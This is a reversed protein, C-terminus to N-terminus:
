KVFSAVKVWQAWGASATWKKLWLEGATGTVYVNITNADPAIACPATGALLIGGLGDWGTQKGSILRNHWLDGATGRVFVDITGTTGSCASPASTLTGGLSTWTSTPAPAYWLAKDSGAVFTDGSPLTTPSSAFTTHTPNPSPNFDTTNIIAWCDGVGDDTDLFFSYPMDWYGNAGWGAGWSNKVLFAGKSGDYNGTHNDDYGIFVNAHGGAIGGSPAPMNGDAGTNFFSEPVNFGFMVPYVSQIVSNPAIAAKVNAITTSEDAADLRTAVTAEHKKADALVNAPVPGQMGGTYPFESEPAVGINQLVWATTSLSSGVDQLPNGDHALSCQYIQQRAGNVFTGNVIADRIKYVNDGANGTCSGESGQDEVPTIDRIIYSAPLKEIQERSLLRHADKHPPDRLCGLGYKRGNIEHYIKNEM